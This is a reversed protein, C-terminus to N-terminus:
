TIDNSKVLGLFRTIAYVSCGVIANDLLIEDGNDNTSCSYHQRYAFSAECISGSYCRCAAATRSAMGPTIRPRSGKVSRAGRLDIPGHGSFSLHSRDARAGRPAGKQNVAGSGELPRCSTSRLASVKSSARAASPPPSSRTIVTALVSCIASNAMSVTFANLRKTTRSAGCAGSAARSARITRDLVVIILCSKRHRWRRAPLRPAGVTDQTSWSLPTPLVHFPCASSDSSSHARSIIQGGRRSAQTRQSRPDTLTGDARALPASGGPRWGM